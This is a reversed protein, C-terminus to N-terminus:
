KSGTERSGGELIKLDAGPKLSRQGKVVVRDGAAVGELIEMHDDDAFGTTVLRREATPKADEGEGDATIYVFTEGKETIVAGRPVLTTGDRRETVIRVQTFDGPRTGAPYDTVEVTVKITGSTPDIVPSILTIRGQLRTGNSDLVLDVAQNQQLKNFERSPVHVRALLPMFDALVMLETGVTINQGLDILRQTVRGAFPARVTTYGLDLRALGEDAEASALDSRAAQYEEQTTLDEALMAEMREFRSRLNLTRAEAQMLRLKYEGNEILLLADGAAVEDGEEVSLSGVVGAARALVRAEKDAELTATANYYSSISGTVVAQVAVPIAPKAPGKGPGGGGPHGGGHNAKAPASETNDGSCAGVTLLLVLGLLPLYRGFGSLRTRCSKVPM